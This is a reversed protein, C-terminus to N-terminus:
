TIEWRNIDIFRINSNEEESAALSTLVDRYVLTPEPAHQPYSRGYVRIQGAESPDVSIRGEVILGNVRDIVKGYDLRTEEYNLIDSDCVAFVIDHIHFPKGAREALFAKVGEDIEKDNM